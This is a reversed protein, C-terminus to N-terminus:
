VTGCVIVDVLVTRLAALNARPCVDRGLKRTTLSPGGPQTRSLPCFHDAGSHPQVGSGHGTWERGGTTVQSAVQSWSGMLLPCPHAGLLWFSPGRMRGDHDCSGCWLSRLSCYLRGRKIRMSTSTTIAVGLEDKMSHRSINKGWISSKTGLIKTMLIRNINLSGASMQGVPKETVVDRIMAKRAEHEQLDNTAECGTWVESTGRM